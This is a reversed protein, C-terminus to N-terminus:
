GPTEAEDVFMIFCGVPADGGLSEGIQAPNGGAVLELDEDSLGLEEKLAAPDEQFRRRLMPDISLKVMLDAIANPKSM